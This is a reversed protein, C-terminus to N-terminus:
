NSLSSSLSVRYFLCLVCSSVTILRLILGWYTVFNNLFCCSMCLLCFSFDMDRVNSTLGYIEGLCSYFDFPCSCWLHGL